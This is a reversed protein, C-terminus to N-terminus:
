GDDPTPPAAGTRDAEVEARRRSPVGFSSEGRQGAVMRELQREIAQIALRAARDPTQAHQVSALTPGLPGLQLRLSASV